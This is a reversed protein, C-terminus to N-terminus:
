IKPQKQLKQHETMTLSTRNMEDKELLLTHFVMKYCLISIRRIIQNDSAPKSERYKISM